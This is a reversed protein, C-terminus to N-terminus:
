WDHLSYGFSVQKSKLWLFSYLKVKEILSYPTAVTNQFVRNNREKWIVWVAACWIIKLYLYSTRPMGAMKTFQQFHNRPNGPSVDYIGLWMRTDTWLRSSFACNFFLHEVTESVDCGTAFTAANAQVVGRRLLNDRTRLRNRLLRWVMLSVKTPIHKLWVDDVCERDLTIGSLTLYWYSERVSYARSPDLLWKWADHINVQLVINNVLASCERLSEEEWALLCRRWVWALGEEEWGLRSMEEVTREKSEALDFLRPFKYRLPIDGIWNDYWFMTDRGDGVVRRVNDDFWHGVGEGIGEQVRSLTRWWLSCQSGGEQLRGEVEGYRAKLVRYWLGEKDTLMRWCWKWLLSINFAGV